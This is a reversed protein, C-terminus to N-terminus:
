KENQLPLGLKERIYREGEAEIIEGNVVDTKTVLVDGERPFTTPRLFIYWPSGWSRRDGTSRRYQYHLSKQKETRSDSEYVVPFTLGLSDVNARMSSVPDYLGVAIIGLGQTKYKEHFRQLMPADFRWNPCWPAFYVIMVLKKDRAFEKLNVESDGKISKYTWNKYSIEREIIPAQENQAVAM